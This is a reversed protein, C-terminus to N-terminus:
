SKFYTFIDSYRDRSGHMREDYDRQIEIVEDSYMAELINFERTVTDSKIKSIDHINFKTNLGGKDYDLMIQHTM